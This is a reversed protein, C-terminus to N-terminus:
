TAQTRPAAAALVLVSAVLAGAVVTAVTLVHNTRLLPLLVIPAVAAAARNVMWASTTARGRIRADFLEAGYMTMTPLYLAGAVGFGIVSVGLVLPARGVFFAIVFVLMLIAALAMFLRREFGDVIFGALVTGVAPGMTAIGVYFLTDSLSFHRSLLIPGTLLPFAVTAWPILFYIFSVVAFKSRASGPSELGLEGGTLGRMRTSSLVLQASSNPLPWMTRSRCFRRSVAEAEGARGKSMLWQPAEPLWLFWPGAILSMMGAVLLPWRWAELGFPQLPTLWRIMFIAAPPALYAAACVSFVLVGRRGSPSIDALYAIMLPPYAGLALGCLLRSVTLDRATPSIAALLSTLGIWAVLGALASRPGIRDGIWGLLPAGGIAGAYVSGLMWSLQREPLSHPPASFVASLAGGMALEMLDVAFGCACLVVIAIHLVTLPRVEVCARVEDQGSFAPELATM